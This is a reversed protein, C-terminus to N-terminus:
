ERQLIEFWYSGAFHVGTRPNPYSWASDLDQRLVVLSPESLAITLRNPKTPGSDKERFGSVGAEDRVGRRRSRIGPCASAPRIVLRRSDASARQRSSDRRCISKLRFRLAM